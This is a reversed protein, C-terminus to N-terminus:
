GTRVTVAGQSSPIYLHLRISIIALSVRMWHDEGGGYLSSGGQFALGATERGFPRCRRGHEFLVIRHRIGM